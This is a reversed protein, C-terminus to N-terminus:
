YEDFASTTPNDIEKMLLRCRYVPRGSTKACEATVASRIAKSRRSAAALGSLAFDGGKESMARVLAPVAPLSKPGFAILAGVAEKNFGHEIDRTLPVLASAAADQGFAVVSHALGDHIEPATDFAAVLARLVEKGEPYSALEGLRWAAVESSRTAKSRADQAALMDLLQRIRAAPDVRIKVLALAAAVHVEPKADAFAAEIEPRAQRAPAGINGLTDIAATRVYDDKDRALKRLRPVAPAAAPGLRKAAVVADRVVAGEPDSLLPLIRPAVLRPSVGLAVLCGAVTMRMNADDSKLFPLLASYASSAAPGLDCVLEIAKGRLEEGVEDDRRPRRRVFPMIVPVAPAGVRRIAKVAWERVHERNDSREPGFPHQWPILAIRVLAALAPRADRPYQQLLYAAKEKDEMAGPADLVRALRDVARKRVGIALLAGAAAVQVKVARDGLRAELAPVATRARGRELAHCVHERVDSDPDGLATILAPVVRADVLMQSLSSAAAIRVKSPQRRDLILAALPQLAARAARPEESHDPNDEYIWSGLAGLANAATARIDVEPDKLMSILPAVAEPGAVVGMEYLVALGAQRVEKDPSRLSRILAPVAPAAASRSGRIRDILARQRRPDQVGDLARALRMMVIEAAVGKTLDQYAREAAAPDTDTIRAIEGDSFVGADPRGGTDAIAALPAVVTAVSLLAAAVTIALARRRM